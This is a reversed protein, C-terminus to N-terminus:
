GGPTHSKSSGADGLGYGVQIHEHGRIRGLITLSGDKSLADSEPTRAPVEQVTRWANQRPRGGVFRWVYADFTGFERQVALFTRANQIAAAIKLRNRVLGPNALLEEVKRADYRAVAHPDFGDFAVRYSHRKRLITEWSLGAQAGELILFEFLGRDDHLPVGWEADHYAIGLETTAWACRSREALPTTM